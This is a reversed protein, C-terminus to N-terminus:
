NRYYGWSNRGFCTLCFSLLAAVERYNNEGPWRAVSRRHRRRGRPTPCLPVFRGEQMPKESVADKPSPVATGVTPHPPHLAPISSSTCSRGLIAAPFLLLDCDHCPKPPFPCKCQVLISLTAECWSHPTTGKSRPDGQSSSNKQTSAPNVQIVTLSATAGRVRSCELGPVLSLSSETRCAGLTTVDWSGCDPLKLSVEDRGLCNREEGM